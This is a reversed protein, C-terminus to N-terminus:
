ISVNEWLSGLLLRINLQHHILESIALWIILVLSHYSLALTALSM